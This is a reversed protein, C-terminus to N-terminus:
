VKVTSVIEYTHKYYINGAYIGSAIRVKPSPADTKFAFATETDISVNVQPDGTRLMYGVNFEGDAFSNEDQSVAFAMKTDINGDKIEEATLLVYEHKVRCAVNITGSKEEFSTYGDENFFNVDSISQVNLYNFLYATGITIGGGGIISVGRFKLYPINISEFSYWTDPIKAWRTTVKFFGGGIDSLTEEYAYHLKHVENEEGVLLPIYNAKDVYSVTAIVDSTPISSDKKFYNSNPDLTKEGDVLTSPLDGFREYSM